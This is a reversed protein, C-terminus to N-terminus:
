VSSVPLVRQVWVGDSQHRVCIAEKLAGIDVLDTADLIGAVNLLLNWPATALLLWAVGPVDADVDVDVDLEDSWM